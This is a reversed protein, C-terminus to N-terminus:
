EDETDEVKIGADLVLISRGNVEVVGDDELQKLVRGAMERSCGVIKALEQRSIRVIRGREHKETDDGAALNLITRAVRGAVDMFALDIANRSTARLREALQGALVWLLDPHDKVLTRFRDYGMESVVTEQRTRVLASRAALEPFLGMEGFFEGKGLYALVMEHDEDDELVISVSGELILYLNDPPEGERLVTQKNPISRRRAAMHFSAIAQEYAASMKGEASELSSASDSM